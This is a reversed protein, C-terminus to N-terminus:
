FEFEMGILPIFSWQYLTDPRQDVGNWYYQSVNQQNYANWVSLFVILNSGSFQFRRDARLNLSHYAPFREANIRTADLVSRQIAKSAVTDIPTYPAGGAYIWRASFEWNRNPKYGGEVSFVIRNDFVRDRWIGDFDRYESRSYGGSLLGYIGEVLKKRVTFEAGYARAQGESRLEEHNGFFNRYILEDAIFLQPELPDLPFNDYDKYYGEITLRTDKALLHHVGAIYHIAVPDDLDRNDEHQALLSLPLHQYYIGTAGILSTRDTLNYTLSLRPAIHQQDNYDFYDFRVGATASLRDLPRWEHSIYVAAGTAGIDEDIDLAPVTDGLSNTYEATLVNYDNFEHKVEAGFELRHRNSLRIHNRHRLHLTREWATADTLEERTSTEFFNDKQRTGLTSLTTTAYGRAGYTYQWRVGGAYELGEYKGYVVNDDEVSQEADFEVFDDGAIGLVSIQHAPPLDITLKGQYDSYRPAIGIGIADVILDLYSRRASFLWSGSEGVPGEAAAGFGAFNMDLQGDFEDRNGDRFELEMVSSLRDGYAASFGGASFAVDEVFDVNVLSIPGGSSGQLPFHNINPIEIDDVYFTNEAPNGGRVILSNMQDNVKAISPLVMLIRSVDGASGPARRVEETTYSVTSPAKEEPKSFFSAEVVVDTMQVASPTLEVPVFTQRKQRVIIDTVSQTEYGVSQIRLAYSGAPIDTILFVGATDAAAGRETSLLLISAGIIPSKTEADLVRGKIDGTPTAGSAPSPWLGSQSLIVLLVMALGNSRTKLGNM